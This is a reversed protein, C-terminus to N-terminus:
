TPEAADDILRAARALLALVQKTEARVPDGWFWGDRAFM